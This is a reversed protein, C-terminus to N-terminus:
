TAPRVGDVVRGDRIHIVRDAAKAVVPDHTVLVVTLDRSSRLRQILALGSV